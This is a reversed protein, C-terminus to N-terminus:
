KKKNKYPCEFVLFLYVRVTYSNKKFIGAVPMWARSM